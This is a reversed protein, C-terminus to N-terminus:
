QAKPLTFFFTSGTGPESEVWVKGGHMEAIKKVLTLGVGTGEVDDQSSLTQFIQFVQEYYRPDIGPGNDTVSIKWFSGEDACSVIVSGDPKDMFKVANGILNQFVQGLRTKEGNVTPLGELVIRVKAPVNLMEVAGAAVENLDVNERSERVRGVRSYQLISEILNEMRKARDLLLDLQRKGDEDLVNSYDTALWSALSGIGRLPAKLDHSVVYAFDNLEKNASLLEANLAEQREEARRRETIDRGFVVMYEDGEFVFYNFAAELPFRTGDKRVEIAEFRLTESDKLVNWIDDWREQPFNASIDPLGLSLMEGRGYGHAACAAENAYAIRGDAGVRIIQDMSQEVEFQSLRLRQEAKKRETVNRALGYMGVPSGDPDRVFSVVCELVVISGNKHNFDVEITVSRDPDRERDHELEGALVVVVGELSKQGIQKEVPLTSWEEAPYGLIKEVSPSAYSTKLDLGVVFAFDNINDALFRYRQESERLAREMEERESIDTLIGRVGAPNGEDYTILTTYAVSPFTTGDKRKALYQRVAGTSRGEMMKDIAGSVRSQDVEEIVQLVHIGSAIDEETYGFMDYAGANIYTIMGSSDLEFVVQPLSDALERYRQESSRLEIETREREDIQEILEENLNSLERTRAQIRSEMQDRADRLEDEAVVRAASMENFTGALEGLEDHSKVQVEVGSGSEGFQEAADRLQLVPGVVTRSVLFTGGLAVFLLLAGFIGVGWATNTSTSSIYGADAELAKKQSTVESDLAHTLSSQKSPGTLGEVTSISGITSGADSLAIAKDTAANVAAYETKMRDVLRTSTGREAEGPVLDVQAAWGDLADDAQERAERLVETDASSRNVMYTLTARVQANYYRSFREVLMTDAMHDRMSQVNSEIGLMHMISLSKVAGMLNDLYRDLQAEEEPLQEAVNSSVTSGAPGSIAADLQAMAEAQRGSGALAVAWDCATDVETYSKRTSGLMKLEEAHERVTDGTHRDEATRWGDIGLAAQRHAQEYLRQHEASGTAVLAACERLQREYNTAFAEASLVEALGENIQTVNSQVNQHPLMLLVMLAILVVCSPLVLIYFKKRLSLKM